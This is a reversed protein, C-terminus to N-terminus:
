FITIQGSQNQVNLTYLCSDLQYKKKRPPQKETSLIQIINRRGQHSIERSLIQIIKAENGAREKQLMRLVTLVNPHVSRCIKNIRRHWGEIHHTTHSGDHDYHNWNRFTGEVWTETLCNNFRTVAM